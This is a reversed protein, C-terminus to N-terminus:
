KLSQIKIAIKSAGDVFVDAGKMLLVFGIILLSFNFVIEM